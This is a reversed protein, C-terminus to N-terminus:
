WDWGEPRGFNYGVVKGDAIAEAYYGEEFAYRKKPKKKILGIEEAAERGRKTISCRSQGRKKRKTISNNKRVNTQKKNGM